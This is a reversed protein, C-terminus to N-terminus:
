ADTKFSTPIAKLIASLARQIRKAEEARLVLTVGLYTASGFVLTGGIRVIDELAQNPLVIDGLYRFALFSSLGLIAWGLILKEFGRWRGMITTIHGKKLLWLALLVTNCTAAVSTALAIGTAGLSKMLLFSLVIKVGLSLLSTVLPTVMDQFAYYVRLLFIQGAFAALGLSYTLLPGSTMETAAPDFAGRQYLIRVLPLRTICFFITVPIIVFLLVRLGTGCIQEVRRYNKQAAFISMRPLAAVSIALVFVGVPLQILRDAFALASITGDSLSSALMRDLVYYLGWIGHVLAIFFGFSLVRRTEPEALRLKGHLSFRGIRFIKTLILAQLVAGLLFGAAIGSTGLRSTLLLVALIVSLNLALPAFAPTVFHEFGNYISELISALGLFLVLFSLLHMLSIALNQSSQSLGPAILSVIDASRWFLVLSLLLLGVGMLKTYSWAFSWAASDGKKLRYHSFVPIFSNKVSYKIFDTFLVPVTLAVFFADTRVSAGFQDAIVVERLFGLLRSLLTAGILITSAAAIGQKSMPKSDAMPPGPASM